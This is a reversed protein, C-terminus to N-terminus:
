SFLFLKYLKFFLNLQKIEFLDGPLQNWVYISRFFTSLKGYNTRVQPLYARYKNRRNSRSTVESAYRVSDGLYPPCLRNLVKCIDRLPIPLPLITYM